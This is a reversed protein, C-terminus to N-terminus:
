SETEKRNAYTFRHLMKCERKGYFINYLTYDQWTEQPCSDRILVTKKKKVPKYSIDIIDSFYDPWDYEFSIEEEKEGPYKVSARQFGILSERVSEDEFRFSVFESIESYFRELDTVCALFIGIKFPIYVEPVKEDIYYLDTKGEVFLDINKCVSRIVSNIFGNSKEIKEFLDTYFDLFPIGNRRFYVALYKVMGFSHFSQVFSSFRMAKCWDGSNMTDTAIIIESRTSNVIDSSPSTREQCLTSVRTKIGYKERTEKLYLVTNPLVECPHVNISSHQGAEIACFLGRCFSEYTEGPLALIFDTYTSINENQYLKMQEAFNDISINKRGINELVTPDMSQVAVSIGCNMKETELLRAIEFTTEDKNKALSTEFKAPFGYKRKTEVIYEAIEKDRPLIGFNSDASICYVIKNKAMWDIDAKVRELNFLRFNKETGAWCCYICGYPCGRNTELVADFRLHSYKPNNVIDDFMGSSYPSNFDSVDRNLLKQTRIIDGDKRFSINNVASLSEDEALTELLSRFTKEGEGHMLIDIFPYQELYETDDPVQPGGFVVIAEPWMKKVSEALALNYNINWMYSSFGVLYPSEMNGLVEDFPDKMFVFKELCYEKKIEESQWAYAALAGISYPLFIEGSLVQGPQILYVNKM